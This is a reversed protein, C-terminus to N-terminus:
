NKTEVAKICIMHVDSTPAVNTYPLLLPGSSKQLIIGTAYTVASRLLSQLYVYLPYIVSRLPTVCEQFLYSISM